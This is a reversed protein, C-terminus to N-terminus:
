GKHRMIEDTGKCNIIMIMSESVIWWCKWSRWLDFDLREELRLIIWSDTYNRLRVMTLDNNQEEWIMECYIPKVKLHAVLFDNGDIILEVQWSRLEDQIFTQIMRIQVFSSSSMQNLVDTVVNGM